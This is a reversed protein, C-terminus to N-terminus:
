ENIALLRRVSEANLDPADITVVKKRGRHGHTLHVKNSPVRLAAAIFRLLADNARGDVPQAALRIKIADGVIGVIESRRANPMVQVALRIEGGAARCWEPM